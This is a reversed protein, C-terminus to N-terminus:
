KVVFRDVGRENLMFMCESNSLRPSDIMKAKIKKGARELRIRHSSAHAIVNGGTAHDVEQFLPNAGPDSSIQNTIVVAINYTEAIKLLKNMMASLRQQRPALNGRGMYEQRHLMIISDVVILKIRNEEVVRSLEKTIYELMSASDPRAVIIKDIIDPDLKRESIIGEIRIASFTGEVDIYLTNGDLGGQEEPLATLVSLTFCIQSKGSGFKGYFETISCTEIGGGLLEDLSEVGTKIKKRTKELIAYERATRFDKGIVNNDKLFNHASMVLNSAWEQSKELITAIDASGAVALDKINYIGLTNLKTISVDGLGKIQDLEFTVEKQKENGM